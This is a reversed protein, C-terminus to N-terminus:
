KDNRPLSLKVRLALPSNGIVFRGAQKGAKEAEKRWDYKETSCWNYIFGLTIENTAIM